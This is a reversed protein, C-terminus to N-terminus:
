RISSISKREDVINVNTNKSSKQIESDNPNISQNSCRTCVTGSKKGGKKKDNVEDLAKKDNAERTKHWTVRKHVILEMKYAFGNM